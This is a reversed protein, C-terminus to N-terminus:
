VINETSIQIIWNVKEFKFDINLKANPWFLIRLRWLFHNVAGKKGPM